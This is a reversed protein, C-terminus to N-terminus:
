QKGNIIKYCIRKEVVQRAVHRSVDTALPNRDPDSLFCVANEVEVSLLSAEVVTEESVVFLLSLLTDDDDHVLSALMKSYPLAALGFSLLM